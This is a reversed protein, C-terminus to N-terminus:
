SKQIGLVIEHSRFRLCSKVVESDSVHNWSYQIEFDAMNLSYNNLSKNNIKCLLTFTKFSAYVM